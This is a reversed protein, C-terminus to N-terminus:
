MLSGHDIRAKLSFVAQPVNFGGERIDFTIGEDNGTLAGLLRTGGDVSQANSEGDIVLQFNQIHDGVHCMNRVKFAM